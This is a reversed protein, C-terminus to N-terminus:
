LASTYLYPKRSPSLCARSSTGSTPTDLALLARISVVITRGRNEVYKVYLRESDGKGVAQNGTSSNRYESTGRSRRRHSGGLTGRLPSARAIDDCEDGEVVPPEAVLEDDKSFRHAMTTNSHVGCRRGTSIRGSHSSSDVVQRLGRNADDCPICFSSCSRCASEARPCARQCMHVVIHPQLNNVGLSWACYREPYRQRDRAALTASWPGHRGFDDCPQEEAALHPSGKGSLIVKAIEAAVVEPDQVPAVAAFLKNAALTKDVGDLSSHLRSGTHTSPRSRSSHHRTAGSSNRTSVQM